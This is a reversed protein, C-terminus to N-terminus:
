EDLTVEARLEWVVRSQMMTGWPLPIEPSQLTRRLNLMTQVDPDDAPTTLAALGDTPLVVASESPMVPCSLRESRGDVFSNDLTMSQGVDVGVPDDAVWTVDLDQDTACVFAEDATVPAALEGRGPFWLADELTFGPVAETGTVVVDMVEGFPFAAETCDDLRYLFGGEEPNYRHLTVTTTASVLSVTVGLDVGTAPGAPGRDGASEPEGALTWEVRCEGYEVETRDASDDHDEGHSEDDDAVVGLEIRCRDLEGAWGQFEVQICDYWGFGDLGGWADETVTSTSPTPPPEHEPHGSTEPCGVLLFSAIFASKRM